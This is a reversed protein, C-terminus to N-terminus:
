PTAQVVQFAREALVRGGVSVQLTWAGPALDSPTDFRYLFVNHYSGTSTQVPMTGRSETRTTGDAGRIPPHRAILELPVARDRPLGSIQYEFGFNGGIRAPIADTAQELEAGTARVPRGAADVAGDAVAAGTVKFIGHSVVKASASEESAGCGGLAVALSVLVSVAGAKWPPRAASVARRSDVRQPAAIRSYPALRFVAGQAVAVRSVAFGEPVRATQGKDNVRDNM